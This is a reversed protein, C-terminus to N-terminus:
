EGYGLATFNVIHKFKNVDFIRRADIIIPNKMFKVFIEPQINKFDDWETLIVCCDSDKLCDDISDCYDIKENFIQKFNPMAMPDNVKIKANQELLNKVIKISVSERIDDTNKKFSLGLISIKKGNLNVLKNKIMNIIISPQNENIKDTSELIPMSYGHSKVFNLFGKVDKPFCSGGYGPGSKLFMKGIRPDMGIAAAIIEVDAGPIENCINAVNNIFSIKTALFSNNTYKILEANVINTNMINVSNSYLKNYFLNITNQTKKYNAGIVVLHPNLMDDIASGEKLFEPNICIDFDIGIIKSSNQQMLPIIQTEITQPPVTSKIVIIRFKDDNLESLFKSIDKCTNKLSSLNSSGDSNSPTGVCVFIIESERICQELHSNVILSVDLVENLLENIKPEFFPSKKRNISLIKQEDIDIGHINLGKKAFVCSMTLGVFGLGIVGVNM